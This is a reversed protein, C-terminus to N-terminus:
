TKRSSGVTVFDLAAGAGGSRIWWRGSSPGAADHGNSGPDFRPRGGGGARRRLQRGLNLWLTGDDRLVRRVERFVAVLEDVFAQPTAELGIQGGRRLRAPRLVPAIHRLLAGVCKWHRSCKSPLRGCGDVYVHNPRVQAAQCEICDSM